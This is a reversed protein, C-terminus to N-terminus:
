VYGWALNAYVTTTTSVGTGVYVAYGAPSTPMQVYLLANSATGTLGNIAMATAPDMTVVMDGIAQTSANSLVTAVDTMSYSTTASATGVFPVMMAAVMAVAVLVSIWRKRTKLM